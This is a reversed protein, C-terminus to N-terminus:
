YSASNRAVSQARRARLYIEHARRRLDDAMAYEGVQELEWAAEEIARAALRIRAVSADSPMGAGAMEPGPVGPAQSSPFPFAPPNSGPLAASPGPPRGMPADQGLPGQGPFGQGHLTQSSFGTVPAVSTAPEQLGEREQAFLAALAARFESEDGLGTGVRARLALLEAMEEDLRSVSEPLKPLRGPNAVEQELVPSRNAPVAPAIWEGAGAFSFIAEAQGVVVPEPPSEQEQKASHSAVPAEQLQHAALAVILWGLQGASTKWRTLTVVSALSIRANWGLM